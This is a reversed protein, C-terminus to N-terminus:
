VRHGAFCCLFLGPDVRLLGLSRDLVIGCHL